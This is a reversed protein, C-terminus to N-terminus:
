LCSPHSLSSFFCISKVKFHYYQCVGLIGRRQLEKSKNIDTHFCDTHQARLILLRLTRIGVTCIKHLEKISKKLHFYLSDGLVTFDCAKRGKILTMEERVKLSVSIPLLFAFHLGVRDSHVKHRRAIIFALLLQLETASLASALAQMGQLM